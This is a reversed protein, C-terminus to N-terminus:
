DVSLWLTDIGSDKKACLKIYQAAKTLQDAMDKMSMNDGLELTIHGTPHKLSITRATRMNAVKRKSM